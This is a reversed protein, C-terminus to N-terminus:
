VREFVVDWVGHGLKIGRNEFKTLPRYHPKDVVILHEDQYLIVELFPIRPEHPVDRYYYLRLHSQFPREPTVPVGLDDVVKGQAMRALWVAEPVSAFHATLFTLLTPWPGPPVVVCSPGVGDRAPPVVPLQAKM